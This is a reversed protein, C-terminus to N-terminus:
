SSHCVLTLGLVAQNLWAKTVPLNFLVDTEEKAAFADDLAEIAVKKQLHLYKRSVGERKALQTITKTESLSEIALNKRAENSFQRAAPLSASMDIESLFVGL